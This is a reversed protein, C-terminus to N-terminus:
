DKYSGLDIIEENSSNYDWLNIINFKIGNKVIVVQQYSTIGAPANRLVDQTLTFKDWNVIENDATITLINNANDTTTM